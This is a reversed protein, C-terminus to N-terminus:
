TVVQSLDVQNEIATWQKQQNITGVSHRGMAGAHGYNINQDGHIVSMHPISQKTGKVEDRGLPTPRLEMNIPLRRTPGSHEGGEIKKEHSLAELATILTNDSPEIKLAQKVDIISVWHPYDREVITLVEHALAEDYPARQEM